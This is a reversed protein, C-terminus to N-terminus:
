RDSKRSEAAMSRVSAPMNNRTAATANLMAPPAHHICRTQKVGSSVRSEAAAISLSGSIRWSILVTIEARWAGTSPTLTGSNLV